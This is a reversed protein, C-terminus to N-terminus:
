EVMCADTQNEEWAGDKSGDLSVKVLRDKKRYQIVEVVEGLHLGSLIVAKKGKASPHVPELYRAHVNATRISARNDTWTLSVEGPGAPGDPGAFRSPIQTRAHRGAFRGQDYDM